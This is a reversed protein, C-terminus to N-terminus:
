LFGCTKAQEAMVFKEHFATEDHLNGLGEDRLGAEAHSFYRLFHFILVEIGETAGELCGRSFRGTFVAFNLQFLHLVSM